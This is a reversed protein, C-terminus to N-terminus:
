ENKSKSLDKMGELLKYAEESMWFRLDQETNTADLISYNGKSYKEYMTKFKAQKEYMQMLSEETEQIEEDLLELTIEIDYLRHEQQDELVKSLNHMLYGSVFDQDKICYAAILSRMNCLNIFHYTKYDHGGKPKKISKDLERFAHQLKESMPGMKLQNFHYLVENYSEQQERTAPAETYGYCPNHRKAALTLGQRVFKRPIMM